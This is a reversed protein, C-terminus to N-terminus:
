NIESQIVQLLFEKPCIAQSKMAKKVPLIVQYSANFIVDPYPFEKDIWEGGEYIKGLITQDNINVKGATFYFFNVDEAKAVVSYAYTRKM